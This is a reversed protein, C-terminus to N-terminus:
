FKAWIEDSAHIMVGDQSSLEYYKGAESSSVLAKIRELTATNASWGGTGDNTGPKVWVIQAESFFDAMLATVADKTHKENTAALQFKNWGPARAPFIKVTPSQNSPAGGSSGVYNAWDVVLDDGGAPNKCYQKVNFQAKTFPASPATSRLGIRYSQDDDESDFSPAKTWVLTTVAGEGNRTIAPRGFVGDIIPRVGTFGNPITVEVRYTDAEAAPSSNPVACGHPVALVLEYSKGAVAYPLQTNVVGVHAEVLAAHGLLAATAALLAGAVRRLSSRSPNSM